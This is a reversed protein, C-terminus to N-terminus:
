GRTAMGPPTKQRVKRSSTRSIPALRAAHYWLKRMKSRVGRACCIACVITETTLTVREASTWESGAFRASRSASRAFLSLMRM